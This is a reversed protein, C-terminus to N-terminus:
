PASDTPSVPHVLPGLADTLGALSSRVVRELAPEYRFPVRRDFAALYLTRRLPPSGIPHADLKGNRVEDIVSGYPLVGAAAGAPDSEQHGPSRVEFAIKAEVGLDRANRVVLDRITDGSEPLALTEEFAEAATVARGKPMSPLTVLVLDEHLLPTLSTRHRLSMTPWASIQRGRSLLAVLVHSMEEVLSLFVQPVRDRLNVVIDPGIVLMLMPTLGLRIPEGVQEDYAAVEEHVREVLDLIELERTHLLTGAATPQVGRSRRSLLSVGLDQELQRIQMGLAPQAVYLTEAARTMNGLEVIKM